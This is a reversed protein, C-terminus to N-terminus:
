ATKKVKKNNSIHEFTSRLFTKDVLTLSGKPAGLIREMIDEWVNTLDLLDDISYDDNEIHKLIANGLDQSFLQSFQIIKTALQDPYPSDFVGENVGQKIISDFIDKALLESQKSMESLLRINHNDYLITMLSIIMDLHQLDWDRGQQMIKNLKELANLSQDQIVLQHQEIIPAMEHIVWQTLLDEKSTFYHYFTGKAVGVKQTLMSVSMKQYGVTYFFENTAKLFELRRVDYDKVTRSITM